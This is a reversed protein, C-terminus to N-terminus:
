LEILEKSAKTMIEIKGNKLTAIDEIRVGGWSPIYIGPEVTFVMQDELVGESRPSLRPAEHVHIGVGHGLGHGFYEQYGAKDIVERALNDADKESVGSKINDLARLQAELVIQYIKKQEDNAKGLCITRTLDSVYGNLIAGMDITILEGAEIQKDSAVGHPFAGRFGSAIITEFSTGRAGNQRMFIELETSVEKETMQPKIFGCIHEFAADALDVAAQIKELEQEEKYVRMSEIINTTPVWKVTALDQHLSKKVYDYNLQHAEFGIKTLSLKAFLDKLLKELNNPHEIVEFSQTQKEAQQTYRFDVILYNKASTLLVAGASGTFGSLYYRNAPSLVLLADLDHQNLLQSVKKQCKKM